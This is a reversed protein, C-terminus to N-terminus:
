TFRISVPCFKKKLIDVYSRTSTNASNEGGSVFLHISALFVNQCSCNLVIGRLACVTLRNMDISVYIFPWVVGIGYAFACRSVENRPFYWQAKTKRNKPKTSIVADVSGATAHTHLKKKMKRLFRYLKRLHPLRIFIIKLAWSRIM